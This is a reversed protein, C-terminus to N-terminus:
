FKGRLEILKGLIIIPLERIEKNSYFVTDYTPNLPILYVGKKDKKVKKLTASDGDVIVAAIEGTDVDPQRRIIVVDGDCIRPEMSNGKIKLALLEGRSYTHEDVEEYDIIDEIMNIPIGAAIEGYVPVKYAIKKSKEHTADHEKAKKFEIFDDVDGKFQEPIYEDYFGYENLFQYEKYGYLDVLKKYVFESVNDNEEYYELEDPLIGVADAVEELSMGQDLREDKLASGLGDIDMVDNGLLYDTPVDYLTALKSITDPNPTAKDNEWKAYAQQSVHIVDGVEKQSLRKNIRSSKLRINFM